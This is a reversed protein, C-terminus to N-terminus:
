RGAYRSSVQQTRKYEGIQQTKLLRDLSRARPTQTSPTRVWISGTPTLKRDLTTNYDYLRAIHSLTLGM